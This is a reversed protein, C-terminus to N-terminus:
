EPFTQSEFTLEQRPGHWSYIESTVAYMLVFPWTAEDPDVFRLVGSHDRQALRMETIPCSTIGGPGLDSEEEREIFNAKRRRVDFFYTVDGGDIEDLEYQLFVPRGTGEFARVVNKLWDRYERQVEDRRRETVVRNQDDLVGSFLHYRSGSPPTTSIEDNKHRCTMTEDRAPARRELPGRRLRVSTMIEGDDTEITLRPGNLEKTVKLMDFEFSFPIEGDSCDDAVDLTLGGAEIAYTGHCEYPEELDARYYSRYEGNPRFELELTQVREGCEEDCTIEGAHWVGVLTSRSISQADVRSALACTAAVAVISLRANIRLM